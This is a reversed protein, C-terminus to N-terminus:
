PLRGDPYGQPYNPFYQGPRNLNVTFDWQGNLDTAVVTNDRLSIIQADRLEGRIQEGNKEGLEEFIVTGLLGFSESLDPCSQAFFAAGRMVPPTDFTHDGDKLERPDALEIPEGLRERVHEPQYVQLYISDGASPRRADTQFFLGIGDAQIRAINAVPRVPSANAMCEQHQAIGAITFESDSPVVCGSLLIASVLGLARLGAGRRARRPAPWTWPCMMQTM